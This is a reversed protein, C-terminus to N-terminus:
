RGPALASDLAARFMALSVRGSLQRTGILYTPAANVGSESLRAVDENVLKTPRARESCSHQTAADVGAGIALSDLFPRADPLEKWLAQTAFIRSATEWFRGNASACGASLAATMANLHAPQPLNLFALRVRGPAVYEKRVAPLVEDNWRKCEACEFDGAVVLWVRAASDGEIRGRDAAITFSDPRTDEQRRQAMLEQMNRPRKDPQSKGCALVAVLAGLTFSRIIIM